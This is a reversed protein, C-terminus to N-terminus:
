SVIVANGNLLEARTIKFYAAIKDITDPRHHLDDRRALIFRSFANESIEIEEAARAQSGYLDRLQKLRASIRRQQSPELEIDDTHKWYGM